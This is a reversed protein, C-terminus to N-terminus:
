ASGKMLGVAILTARMENLLTVIGNAQTSLSFGWSTIAGTTTSVAVTTAAIAQASGTRQAIPTVGYFSIKDTTGRGFSTGDPVGSHIQELGM